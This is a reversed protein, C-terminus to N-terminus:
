PAIPPRWFSGAVVYCAAWCPLAFIPGVFAALVNGMSGEYIAGIVGGVAFGIIFLAGIWWLVNGLRQRM